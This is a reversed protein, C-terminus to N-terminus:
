RNGTVTTRAVYTAAGVVGSGVITALAVAVWEGPTVVNDALAVGLASLGGVLASGVAAVVAKAPGLTISPSATNVVEGVAVAPVAEAAPTSGGGTTPNIPVGNQYDAPNLNDSM